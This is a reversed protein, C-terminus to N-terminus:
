ALKRRLAMLGLVGAGLIVLTNGGDPVGTGVTVRISDTNDGNNSDWYFLNLAGTAPALGAFSTGALFYTVGIQGVLAGYPATFGGQSWLPFNVGIVTNVPQGSEDSGTALLTSTLGNANSWRPLAGANWLDTPSASISLPQGSVVNGAFAGSGGSSSNGYAYVDLTTAHASGVLASAALVGLILTTKM